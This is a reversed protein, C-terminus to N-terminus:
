RIHTLVHDAAILGSSSAQAIGRTWGSGDAIAYLGEVDTEMNKNINVMSSYLKVEPSYMLTDEDFIGPAMKDIAQLGEIINTIFRYPFALTIDGMSCELTPIVKNGNLTKTRKHELLNGLRQVMVGNAISNVTKAINESFELPNSVPDTLKISSLFAFNTNNSNKNKNSYGNVLTIEKHQEKVVIGHPNCCFTRVEDQYSPTIYKLKFEYIEDTLHRTIEFPIEIRLGLDCNGITTPIDLKQCQGQLWKSGGRGPALIVNEAYILENDATLLVFNGYKNKNIVSIIETDMKLQVKNEILFNRIGTLVNPLMDSGVHITDSVILELGLNKAQKVLHHGSLNTFDDTEIDGIFDLWINKSELLYGKLKEDDIVENLRGGTITSFIIKGDNIGGGSGGFGTLGASNRYSKRENLDPGQDILLVDKGQGNEAMRLSTFLGAPGAGVVVVPYIKKKM